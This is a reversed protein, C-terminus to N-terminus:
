REGVPMLDCEITMPGGSEAPYMVQINKAGDCPPTQVEVKWEGAAVQSDVTWHRCGSVGLIALLALYKM